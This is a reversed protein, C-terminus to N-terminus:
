VRFLDAAARSISAAYAVSARCKAAFERCLGGCDRWMGLSRYLDRAGVSALAGCDRLNKRRPWIKEQSADLL